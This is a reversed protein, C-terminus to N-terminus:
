KEEWDGFYKELFAEIMNIRRKLDDIDEKLNYELDKVDKEIGDIQDQFGEMISGEGFLKEGMM